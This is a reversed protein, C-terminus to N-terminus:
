SCDMAAVVELGTCSFFFFFRHPLWGRSGGGRVWHLLLRHNGGGRVWLLLFFFLFVVTYCSAM